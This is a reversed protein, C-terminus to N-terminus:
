SASHARDRHSLYTDGRLGCFRIGKRAESSVAGDPDPPLHQQHLSSHRPFCGEPAKSLGPRIPDGAERGESRKVSRSARCGTAVSCLSGLAMPGSEADTRPLKADQSAWMVPAVALLASLLCTSRRSGRRRKAAAAPLTFPVNLVGVGVPRRRTRSRDSGSRAGCDGAQDRRIM